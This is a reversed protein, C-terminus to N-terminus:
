FSQIPAFASALNALFPARPVKMTFKITYDDLKEIRDPLDPMKLDAFIIYNGGSVKHYASTEKWQREFSFIVDDANFNRPAAVVSTTRARGIPEGELAPLCTQM